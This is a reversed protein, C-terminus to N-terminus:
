IYGVPEVLVGLAGPQKVALRSACAQVPPRGAVRGDRFAPKRSQYAFLDGAPEAGLAEGGAGGIPRASRDSCQQPAGGAQTWGRSSRRDRRRHRALAMKGRGTESRCHECHNGMPRRRRDCGAGGALHRPRARCCCLPRPHWSAARAATADSDRKRRDCTAHPSSRLRPISVSVDNAYPIRWVAADALGRRSRRLSTHGELCALSASMAPM